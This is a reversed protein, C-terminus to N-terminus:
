RRFVYMSPHTTVMANLEQVVRDPHHQIFKRYQTETSVGFRRQLADERIGSAVYSTFMRGDSPAPMLRAM